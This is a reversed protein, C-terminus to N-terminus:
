VECDVISIKKTSGLLIALRDAIGVADGKTKEVHWPGTLAYKKYVLELQFMGPKNKVINGYKDRDIRRNIKIEIKKETDSM